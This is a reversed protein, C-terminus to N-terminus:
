DVCQGLVPVVLVDSIRATEPMGPATLLGPEHDTLDM